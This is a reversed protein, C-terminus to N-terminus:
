PQPSSDLWDSPRRCQSSQRPRRPPALRYTETTAWGLLAFTGIAVVLLVWKLVNSVADENPQDIPEANLTM